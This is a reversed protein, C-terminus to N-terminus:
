SAFNSQFYSFTIMFHMRRTLLPILDPSFNRSYKPVTILFINKQNRLLSKPNTPIHKLIKRLITLMTKFIIACIYFIILFINYIFNM